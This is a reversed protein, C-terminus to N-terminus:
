RRRVTDFVSAGKRKDNGGGQHRMTRTGKYRMQRTGMHRMMKQTEMRRVRTAYTKRYTSAPLRKPTVSGGARSSRMSAVRKVAADLAGSMKGSPPNQVSSQLEKKLEPAYIIETDGVDQGDKDQKIIKYQGFKRSYEEGLFSVIRYLDNPEASNKKRVKEEIKFSCLDGATILECQSAPVFRPERRQTICPVKVTPPLKERNGTDGGDWKVQLYIPPEDDETYKVIDADKFKTADFKSLAHPFQSLLLLKKQNVLEKWMPMPMNQGDDIKESGPTCRAYTVQLDNVDTIIGGFDIRKDYQNQLDPKDTITDGTTFSADLVFFKRNIKPLQTYVPAKTSESSIVQFLLCQEGDNIGTIKTENGQSKESGTGEKVQFSQQKGSADYYTVFEGAKVTTVLSTARVIDLYPTLLNPKEEPADSSPSDAFKCACVVKGLHEPVPEGEKPKVVTPESSVYARIITKNSKDHQEVVTGRKFEKVIADPTIITNGNWGATYSTLNGTSDPGYLRLNTEFEEYDIFRRYNGNIDNREKAEADQPGIQIGSLDATKPLVMGYEEDIGNFKMKVISGALIPKREKQMQLIEQKTIHAKKFVKAKWQTDMDSVARMLKDKIFRLVKQGFLGSESFKTIAATFTDQERKLVGELKKEAAEAAKIAVVIDGATEGTLTYWAELKTPDDVRELNPDMFVKTDVSGDNPNIAKSIDFTKVDPRLRPFIVVNAEPNPTEATLIKSVIKKREALSYKRNSDTGSFKRPFVWDSIFFLELAKIIKKKRALNTVKNGTTIKKLFYEKNSFEEYQKGYESKSLVGGKKQSLSPAILEAFCTLYPLIAKYYPEKVTTQASTQLLAVKRIKDADNRFMVLFDSNPYKKDPGHDHFGHTIYDVVTGLSKKEFGESDEEIPTRTIFNRSRNFREVYEDTSTGGYKKRTLRAVTTMDDVVMIVFFEFFSFLCAIVEGGVFFFM